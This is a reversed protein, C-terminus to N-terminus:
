SKRLKNRIIMKILVAAVLVVVTVIGQVLISMYWPASQMAYLDPHAKYDLLKYISFGIFVGVFSGIVINLFGNIKKLM